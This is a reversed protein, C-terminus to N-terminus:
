IRMACLYTHWTAYFWFMFQFKATVFCPSVSDFQELQIYSNAGANVIHFCILKVKYWLVYLLDFRIPSLSVVIKVSSWISNQFWKAARQFNLKINLPVYPYHIDHHTCTMYVNLIWNLTSNNLPNESSQSSGRFCKSRPVLGFDAIAHEMNEGNILWNYMRTRKKEIM